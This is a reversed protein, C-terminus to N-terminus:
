PPLTSEPFAIVLSPRPWAPEHLAGPVRQFCGGLLQAWSQISLEQCLRCSSPGRMAGPEGEVETGIGAGPKMKLALQWHCRSSAATCLATQFLQM